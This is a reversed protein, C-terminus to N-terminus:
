RLCQSKIFHEELDWIESVKLRAVKVYDNAGKDYKTFEIEKNGSKDTNNIFLLCVSYM